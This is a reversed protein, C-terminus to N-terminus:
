EYRLATIPSIRSVYLAPILLTVFCIFVTGANLLLVHFLNLNVPVRAIFYTEPDLQIIGTYNQFLALSIGIINGILLGKGVLWIANFVFINSLLGNTGGLAKILGIMNTRELIIVLLMSCMNILAVLIMLGLIVWVNIDLLDLWGFLDPYLEQITQTTFAIDINKYVIDDARQLDDWDELLIEFGGAYFKRTGGSTKLSATVSLEEYKGSFNNKSIERMGYEPDDRSTKVSEDYDLKLWLTDAKWKLKPEEGYKQPLLDAVIIKITTDTGPKLWITDHETFGFGYDYYINEGSIGQSVVPLYGNIMENGIYAFGETGWDNLKQLHKIDVFVFQKDFDELSTNYIGCVIFPRGLPKGHRIFYSWVTDKVNLQLNKAIKGSLMIENVASDDNLSLVKGSVLNQQFFYWDYDTSVGKTIVGQIEKKVDSESKSNSQLMAPKLAFIQIKRVEGLSDLEPYFDQDISVPKTEYSENGSLHSIQIHGGFGIVKDRIEKQFGTVISVSLIMVIMGLAISAVSITTIPKSFRNSNDGSKLMRKAIFLGPKL